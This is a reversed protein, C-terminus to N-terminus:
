NIRYRLIAGIGGFGTVFQLGKEFSDPITIVEGGYAETQEALEEIKPALPFLSESLLLTDVAGYDISKQVEDVGYTATEDAISKFFTDLVKRKEKIHTEAIHDSANDALEEIGSEVDTVSSDFCIKQQLEHHLYDGDIFEGRTMEPGGVLVGEVTHRQDSFLANVKEGVRTYHEHIAEIRLRQFRQQSQGGKKQKGPVPTYVTHLTRVTNGQVTGIAADGKDITIAIYQADTPQISVLDDVYFTSDCHYRQSQLPASLTDFIFTEVSGDFVGSFIAIGNEPLQEYESLVRIIAEVASTVHKRTRKTKINEAQAAENQLRRVVSELSGEEPIYVSVLETNRGSYKELQEIRTAFETQERSM